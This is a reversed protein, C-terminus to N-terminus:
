NNLLNLAKERIYLVRDMWKKSMYEDYEQMNLAVMTRRRINCLEKFSPNEWDDIIEAQGDTYIIVDVAKHTM